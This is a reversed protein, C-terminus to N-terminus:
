GIKKWTGCGSTEFAKDSRKITVVSNGGNHNAIISDLDGNTNSLRAWYCGSEPGSKYQGPKIDTGVLYIGDDEMAVAPGPPEATVTKAPPAPKTVTVPPATVTVEAGPEGPATVTVTPQPAAATAPTDSGGTAGATAGFAFILFGGLIAWGIRAEKSMPKKPPKQYGQPGQPFPQRPDHMPQNPYQQQNSM